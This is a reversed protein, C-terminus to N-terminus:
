NEHRRFMQLQLVWRMIQETCILSRANPSPRSHVNSDDCYSAFFTYLYRSASVEAPMM